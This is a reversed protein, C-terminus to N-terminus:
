PLPNRSKEDRPQLRMQLIKKERKRKKKQQPLTSKTSSLFISSLQPPPYHLASVCLDQSTFLTVFFGKNIRSRSISFFFRREVLLLIYKFFSTSFLPSVVILPIRKLKLLSIASFAVLLLPVFSFTVAEYREGLLLGDRFALLLTRRRRNALSSLLLLLLLLKLSFSFLSSTSAICDDVKCAVRCM